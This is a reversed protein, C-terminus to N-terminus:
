YLCNFILGLPFAICAAKVGVDQPTVRRTLMENLPISDLLCSCRNYELFYNFAIVAPLM